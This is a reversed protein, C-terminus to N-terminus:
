VSQGPRHLCTRRNGPQPQATGLPPPSADNDLERERQSLTLTLTRVGCGSRSVGELPRPLFFPGCEFVQCFVNRSYAGLMWRMSWSQLLRGRTTGSCVM